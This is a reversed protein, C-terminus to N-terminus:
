GDAPQFRGGFLDSRNEDPVARRKGESERAGRVAILQAAISIAIEQPGDAGIPIGVPAHVNSPRELGDFLQEIRARSGLVGIYRLGLPLVLELLERERQLQHSCLLLYDGGHMQLAAAIRAATGIVREGEGRGERWDAIIVRFGIGEALGAVARADQGDGFLILRPKPLIRVAIYGSNRASAEAKRPSADVKVKSQVSGMAGSAKGSPERVGALLADDVCTLTYAISDDDWERILLAGSGQALRYQTFRLLHLLEGTVPELLITLEGGCGMAEGWIADEQSRMNYTICEHKGAASIAETRAQLDEELCGGSISGFRRGCPLFLMSAGEKRYAHGRVRVVTALVPAGGEAHDLSVNLLAAMDM